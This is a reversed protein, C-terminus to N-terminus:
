MRIRKSQISDESLIRRDPFPPWSRSFTLPPAKSFEISKAPLKSVILTMSPGYGPQSVALRRPSHDNNRTAPGISSGLHSSGLHRPKTTEGIEAAALRTTSRSPVGPHEAVAGTGAVIELGDRRPVFFRCVGRRIADRYRRVWTCRSANM